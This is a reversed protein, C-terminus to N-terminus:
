IIGLIASVVEDVILLAYTIAMQIYEELFPYKGSNNLVLLVVIIFVITEMMEIALYLNIKYVVRNIDGPTKDELYYDFFGDAFTDINKKIDTLLKTESDVGIKNRAIEDKKTNMIYKVISEANKNLQEVLTEKKAGDPLLLKITYAGRIQKLMTQIDKDYKELFYNPDTKENAPNVFINDFLNLYINNLKHIILPDDINNSIVYHYILYIMIKHVLLERKRDDIINALPTTYIKKFLNNFSGGEEGDVPIIFLNNNVIGENMITTIDAPEPKILPELSDYSLDKLDRLFLPIKTSDKEIDRDNIYNISYSVVTDIKKFKDNYIDYLEKYINKNFFYTYIYSHVYAYILLIIIIYYIYTDRQLIQTILMGCNNNDCQSVVTILIRFINYLMGVLIVFLIVLVLKVIYNYYVNTKSIYLDSAGRDINSVDTNKKNRNNDFTTKVYHLLRYKYKNELIIADPNEATSETISDTICYITFLTYNLINLLLIIVSVALAVIIICFIISIVTDNIGKCIDAGAGEGM